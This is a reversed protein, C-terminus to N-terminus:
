GKKGSFSHSVGRVSLDRDILASDTDDTDKLGATILHQALDTDYPDLGPIVHQIM